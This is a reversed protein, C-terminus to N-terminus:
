VKSLITKDIMGLGQAQDLLTVLTSINMTTSYWHIKKMQELEEKLKTNEESIELLRYCIETNQQKLKEVLGEQNKLFDLVGVWNLGKADSEVFESPHVLTVTRRSRLNLDKLEESYYSRTHTNFRAVTAVTTRGTNKAFEQYADKQKKGNRLYHIVTNLLLEDQDQTWFERKLRTQGMHFVGM